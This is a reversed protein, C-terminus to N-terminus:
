YGMGGLQVRRAFGNGGYAANTARSLERELGAITKNVESLQARGLQRGNISYSQGSAIADRAVYWTDLSTQISSTSRPM